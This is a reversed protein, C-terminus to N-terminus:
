DGDILDDIAALEDDFLSFLDDESLTDLEAATEDPAPAPAAPVATEWHLVEAVLFDTLRAVTPYEFAVTTPLTCGLDVELRTRLQVAMVSDMGMKFFGADAEFSDAEAFGLIAAVVARVHRRLRSVREAPPAAALEQAITHNGSVATEAEVEIHALLPRTRKAEYIPKFRPWDIAAVMAQTASAALLRSLAALAMETPLADQGIQAFYDALEATALGDGEWWGWNVSLAPLGQAHRYAALADLFQNAAAYHGLGAGGLIAASSSFLVFFDLPLTQTLEHLLWGGRVKAALVERLSAADMTALPQTTTIGAAHVLGRLPPLEDGFRAFLAHMAAADATDAQAVTVEVGLAELSQVATVRKGTQSQPDLQAWAARPPLGARSTLVLQRAGQGALWAAVRLGLSGLGGTILYAGEGQAFQWAEHAVKKRSLRAVYRQGDRYAVEDEEDADLIEGLIIDALAAADGSDLDLMGGWLDPQELSLARGLGWLPAAFPQVRESARVPQAQQTVLWLRTQRGALQQVLTLVPACAADPSVATEDLGWLYVVGQWDIPSLAALDDPTNIRTVTQGQAQLAAALAAGVGQRDALILWPGVGRSAHAALPPRTEWTVEYFCDDLNAPLLAAQSVPAFRLGSARLILQGTEDLLTIDGEIAAPTDERLIVHCWVPARYAASNVKAAQNLVYDAIPFPREVGALALLLQVGGDVAEVRSLDPQCRVLAEGAGRWVAAPLPGFTLGKDNLEQEYVATALSPLKAQLSALALPPASLKGWRVVSQAHSQWVDDAQLSFLQATEGTLLWQVTQAEDLLLPKDLRINELTLHAQQHVATGMALLGDVYAAAALLRVAGLRHVFAAALRDAGLTAEFTPIPASLRQGLLPHGTEKGSTARQPRKNELWYRQNQWPYTPLPLIHGAPLLVDWRPAYGQTYLGGLARLLIPRAAQERRMSPLVLWDPACQGVAHMLAPHPAIEVCATYGDAAMAQVAPAFLVPERINRGWYAADYDGPQAQGGRVTSYIPIAAAHTVIGQLAASLQQRFPEMVPSHFAYNVTLMRAFIGAEQLTPILEALADADGSLTLSLPSNEAGISLGPYATLRALADARSLGVAAMKGLGTAQQMLRGRHYIVRVADLLNLVGAVHAAAVEGVSHGVVADPVIGWSRWLAALGVQVAFIAPQAIETDDLRGNEATLETLLSWDTTYQRLLADIETVTDRFVPETALLDRGMGLWQPGQGSFVFVLGREGAPIVQGVAMDDRMEGQAFFDLQEALQAWDTAVLALRHDHHGRRHAATYAMDTLSIGDDALFQQYARALDRLAQPSRASLPMLVPADASSADPPSTEALSDDPAECLILHANTGGFGFSSVAAYRPQDTRPYPREQVPIEFRTDALPILPNLERFHLHMPIRERSLVLAAKILGAIGAAGELHGINTKVSGLVCPAAASEAGIVAALAEVEIPDGLKTGTGHTEVYSIQEPQVKANTLAQRIVAQQALGNPATIGNSSGDQNVATGAILAIIPDGAALADSLRKLVVVGVGEGRVFGDAAADFTKCRGDPAMMQLKTFTITSEPSLLLNVGAALALDCERSRLSNVALHAAVLSSSCATDVALSPGQWDFLYSLRNAIISHATGAGTHTDIDILDRVQLLNYDSSHSHVGVFVGSQSGSLKDLPQGGHELAEVAVQLLLRQQPDMRAAERPSISFFAPDFQDVSDLFGGWRTNTKGPAMFDTDYLADVPWREAPTESIADVGDLLMQWFAAPSNAGGPFRCGMGIIAIPETRAKETADLRARMEKLAVLARKLQSLEASDTM